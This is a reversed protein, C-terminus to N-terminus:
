IIMSSDFSCRNTSEKAVMVGPVCEMMNVFSTFGFANVDIKGIEGELVYKLLAINKGFVGRSPHLFHHSLKVVKDWTDPSIEAPQTAAVLAPAIQPVEQQHVGKWGPGGKGQPLPAPFDFQPDFAPTAWPDDTRGKGGDDWPPMGPM